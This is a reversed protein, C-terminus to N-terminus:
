LILAVSIVKLYIVLFALFIEIKELEHYAYLVVVIYDVFHFVMLQCNFSLPLQEYSLRISM